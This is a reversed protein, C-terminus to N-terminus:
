PPEVERVVRFGALYEPRYGPRGNSLRAESRINIWPDAFSGGRWVHVWGNDPGAPDTLPEAAEDYPQYWDQCWEWVNGHMDHLAWANPRKQGVAHPYQEGQDYANGKHWIHDDFTEKPNDFNFSSTTGARCAYEWEAVTPLRYTVGEAESLTKCFEAADDWTIYNAVYVESDGVLPKTDWPKKSTVQEFQQQTVEFASIYFPKSITVSHAPLESDRSWDIEGKKRKGTQKPKAQKRKAKDEESEPRGMLFEGAPIPVLVMGISNIEPEGIELQEAAMNSRVANVSPASAGCGVLM